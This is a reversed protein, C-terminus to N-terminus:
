ADGCYIGNEDLYWSRETESQRLEWNKGFYTNTECIAHIQGFILLQYKWKTQPWYEREWWLVPWFITVIVCSSQFFLIVWSMRMCNQHTLTLKFKNKGHHVTNLENKRMHANPKSASFQTRYWFPLAHIRSYPLIIECNVSVLGFDSLFFNFLLRFSSFFASFTFIFHKHIAWSWFFLGMTKRTCTQHM